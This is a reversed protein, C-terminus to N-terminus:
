VAILEGIHEELKATPQALLDKAIEGVTVDRLRGDMQARLLGLMHPGAVVVLRDFAHDSLARLLHDSVDRAFRIDSQLQHDTQEVAATGPGAISHGRGAKDRPETLADAQWSAGAHEVLGKGPGRNEFVKATRANALVIWNVIPKM